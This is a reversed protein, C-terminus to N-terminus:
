LITSCGAGITATSIEELKKKNSLLDKLFKAYRPMQSLAEVFPLNIHLKKFLDLFKGLHEQDKDKRLRAPYPLPPKYPQVTPAKVKELENEKVELPRNKDDEKSAEEKDTTKKAKMAVLTDGCKDIQLERGSRLTVAKM